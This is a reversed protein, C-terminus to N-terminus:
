VKKNEGSNRVRENGDGQKQKTQMRAIEKSRIEPESILQTEDPIKTM